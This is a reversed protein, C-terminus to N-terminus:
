IRTSTTVGLLKHKITESMTNSQIDDSNQYEERYKAVRPGWDSSPQLLYKIRQFLSSFVCISVRKITMKKYINILAQSVKLDWKTPIDASM